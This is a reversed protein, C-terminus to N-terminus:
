LICMGFDIHGFYTEQDRRGVEMLDARGLAKEMGTFLLVLIGTGWAVLNLTM